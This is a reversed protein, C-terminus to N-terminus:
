HGNWWCVVPHPRDQDRGPTGNPKMCRNREGGASATRATASDTSSAAMTAARSQDGTATTSGNVSSCLTGSAHRRTRGSGTNPIVTTAATACNATVPWYRGTPTSM